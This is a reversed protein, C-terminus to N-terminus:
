NGEKQNNVLTDGDAVPPLGIKARAENVTLLGSQIAEEYMKYTSQPDATFMSSTDFTFNNNQSALKSDLESTVCRFYYTLTSQLYNLQTQSSNSHESELGLVEPPLGFAAAIERTSWDVANAVQMISKDVPLNQLSMQDDTVLIRNTGKNAEQFKERIQQKAKADLNTGKVNLVTNGMYGGSFFKNIMSNKTNQIDLQDQLAYIPSVGVKSDTTFIKFHLINEATIKQGKIYYSLKGTQDDEKVTVYSNPEFSLKSVQGSNNRSIKAFSNGNLLAESMIAFWFSWANCNNNPQRNILNAVRKGQTSTDSYKIETDAVDGAIKRVAAFIDSNRLASLGVFSGSDSSYTILADMM